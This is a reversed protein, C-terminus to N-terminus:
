DDNERKKLLLGVIILLSGCCATLAVPWWLIGTQPLSPKQTPSPAVPAPPQKRTFYTNTLIFKNGEQRASAYYGNIKKEVCTWYSEASLDKWEFCWNNDSGLIVTDYIEGDKLLQVTVTEPRFKEFGTDNWVKLVKFSTIGNQKSQSVSYKVDAKVNDTDKQPLFVTFPLADYVKNGSIFREGLVLYLGTKDSTNKVSFEAYGHSNIVGTYTPAINDKLVYGSLTLGIEDTNGYIIEDSYDKFSECVSFEGNNDKEAVFYVNFEAGELAKGNDHYYVSFVTGDEHASVPIVAFLLTLIFVSLIKCFKMQNTMM